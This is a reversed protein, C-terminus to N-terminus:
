WYKNVFHALIYVIAGRWVIGSVFYVIFMVTLKKDSLEERKPRYTDISLMVERLKDNM